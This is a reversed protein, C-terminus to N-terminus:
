LERIKLQGKRSNKVEYLVQDALKYIEMFSLPSRSYIGGASLTSRAAPWRREMLAEYAQIIGEFKRRIAGVDQCDAIFVAFEDGGLRCVTDSKRLSQLILEAFCCLAQDGQDHGYIDNVRKFNDLDLMFFLYGSSMQMARLIREQCARRNYTGTLPDTEAESLLCKRVQVQRSIDILVSIIADRGDAAVTRRGIDHVWFYGGDKRRMRYEIEYQDGTKPIREMERDVYARDEPHISNILLGGIDREFDLFSEYGAMQLLRQNAVYLPFGAEAYGGVVGGPMIQSAIEALEHQTEWNVAQMRASLALPFFDGRGQCRSSESVHFSDIVYADGEQYLGVTLRMPFLAETGGPISLHLALACFCDWCGCPRRHALYDTVAYRVPEPAAAIEAQLFARFAEKGRAIEDNGIGVCLVDEALVALAEAEDRMTLYGTLFRRIVAYRPDSDWVTQQPGTM